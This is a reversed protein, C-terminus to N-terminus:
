YSICVLMAKGFDRVQRPNIISVALGSLSLHEAVDIEMEETAELVILEPLFLISKEVQKRVLIKVLMLIANSM